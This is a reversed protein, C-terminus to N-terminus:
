PENGLENRLLVQYQRLYISCIIYNDLFFYLASMQQLRLLDSVFILRKTNRTSWKDLYLASISFGLFAIHTYMHTHM